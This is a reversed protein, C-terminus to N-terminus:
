NSLTEVAIAGGIPQGEYTVGHDLAGLAHAQKAIGAHVKDSMAVASMPFIAGTMKKALTMMDPEIGFAECGTWTGCRRFRSTVEDVVLLIDHRGLVEQKKAWYGKPPIFVGGSVMLLRSTFACITDASADEDLVELEGARRKSFAPESEGSRSDVFYHARGTRLVENKPLHYGDHDDSMGTLAASIAGSVHCASERAFVRVNVSREKSIQYYRAFKVANNM